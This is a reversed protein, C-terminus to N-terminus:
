IRNNGEPKMKYLDELTYKGTPVGNIQDDSYGMGWVDRVDEGLRMSIEGISEDASMPEKSFNYNNVSASKGNTPSRFKGIILNAVLIVLFFVVGFVWKTIPNQLYSIIEDM